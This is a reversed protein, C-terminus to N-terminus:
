VVSNIKKGIFSLKRDMLFYFLLTNFLSTMSQAFLSVTASQITEHIENWSLPTECWFVRLLYFIFSQSSFTLSLSLLCLLIFLYFHFLKM